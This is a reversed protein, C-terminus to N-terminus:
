MFSLGSFICLPWKLHRLPHLERLVLAPCLALLFWAFVSLAGQFYGFNREVDSDWCLGDMEPNWLKQLPRCQFAVTMTFSFWVVAMIFIWVRTPNVWQRGLFSSLYLCISINSSNAALTMWPQGLVHFQLASSSTTMSGEVMAFVADAIGALQAITLLHSRPSLSIVHCVMAIAVVGDDPRFGCGGRIRLHFRVISTALALIVTV